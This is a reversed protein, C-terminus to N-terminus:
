HTAAARYLPVLRSFLQAIIQAIDSGSAIADSKPITAAIELEISKAESMDQIYASLTAHHDQADNADTHWGDDSARLMGSQPHARNSLTLHEGAVISRILQENEPQDVWRCFAQWDTSDGGDTAPRPVRLGFQLAKPDVRVFYKALSDPTSRRRHQIDQVHMEPKNQYAWSNFTLETADIKKTVLAGLQYRSRWTTGSASNKFDTVTFGPFAAKKAASGSKRAAKAEAKLARQQAEWRRREAIRRQLKIDTSIEEGNEWRIVMEDRHISIVKFVGKENEYQEDVKFEIESQEEM